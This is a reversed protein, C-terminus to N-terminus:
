KIFNFWFWGLKKKPLLHLIFSCLFVFWLSGQRHKIRIWLAENCIAMIDARGLCQKRGHPLTHAQHPKPFCACPSFVAAPVPLSLREPDRRLPSSFHLTMPTHRTEWRSELYSRKGRAQADSHTSCLGPAQPVRSVRVEEFPNMNPPLGSHLFYVRNRHDHNKWTDPKPTNRLPSFLTTPQAQHCPCVGCM